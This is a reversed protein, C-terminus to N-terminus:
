SNVKWFELPSSIDATVKCSLYSNFEIEISNVGVDENDFFNEINKEEIKRKKTALTVVEDSVPLSFEHMEKQINLYINQIEENNINFNQLRKMRPDLVTAIKHITDITYKKLIGHKLIKACKSVAYNNTEFTEYFQLLKNYYPWVLHLTVCRDYTADELPKLLTILESLLDRDIAFLKNEKKGGQLLEHIEDYSASISTM